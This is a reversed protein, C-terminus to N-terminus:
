IPINYIHFFSSVERYFTTYSTGPCSSGYYYLMGQGQNVINNPTSNSTVCSILGDGNGNAANVIFSSANMMDGPYANYKSLFTAVAVNYQTIQSVISRAKAGYIMEKGTIIGGIILGIIVMVISIEILTFGKQKFNLNPTYAM